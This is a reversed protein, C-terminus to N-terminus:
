TMASSAWAAISTPNVNGPWAHVYQFLPGPGLSASYRVGPLALPRVAGAVRHGM